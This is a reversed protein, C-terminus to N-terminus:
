EYRYQLASLARMRAPAKKKDWSPFLKRIGSICTKSYHTTDPTKTCRLFSNASDESGVRRARRTSNYLTFLPRGIGKPNNSIDLEIKMPCEGAGARGGVILSDNISTGRIFLMCMRAGVAYFSSGHILARGDKGGDCKGANRGQSCRGGCEGVSACRFAVRLEAQEQSNQDNDCRADDHRECVAM